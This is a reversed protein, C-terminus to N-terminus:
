LLDKPLGSVNRSDLLREIVATQKDLTSTANNLGTIVRELLGDREAQLRDSRRESRLLFFLCILAAFPGAQQVKVWLEGFFDVQPAVPVGPQAWGAGTLLWLVLPWFVLPASAILLVRIIWRIRM